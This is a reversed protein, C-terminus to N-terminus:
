LAKRAMKKEGNNFESNLIMSSWEQIRKLIQNNYIELKTKLGETKTLEFNYDGTIFANYVKGIQILNEKTPTFDNRKSLEPLMKLTLLDQGQILRNLALIEEPNFEFGEKDGLLVMLSELQPEQLASKVHQRDLFEVPVLYLAKWRTNKNEQAYFEEFLEQSWFINESYEMKELLMENFHENKQKAIWLASDHDLYSGSADILSSLGGQRQLLKGELLALMIEKLTTNNFLECSRSRPKWHTQQRFEKIKNAMLERVTEELEKKEKERFEEKHMSLFKQLLGNPVGFAFALSSAIDKRKDHFAMYYKKIEEVQEERDQHRLVEIRLRLAQNLVEKDKELLLDDLEEKSLVGKGTSYKYLYFQQRIFADADKKYESIPLKEFALEDGALAAAKMQERKLM